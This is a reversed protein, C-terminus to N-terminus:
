RDRDRCPDKNAHWDPFRAGWHGEFFEALLHRTGNLMPRPKANASVLKANAATREAVSLGKGSGKRLGQDAAVEAGNASASALAADAQLASDAKAAARALAFAEKNYAFAEPRVAAAAAAKRASLPDVGLFVAVSRM